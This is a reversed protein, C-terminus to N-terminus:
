SPFRLRKELGVHAGAAQVQARDRELPPHSPVGDVLHELAPLGAPVRPPGSPLPPHLPHAGVWVALLAARAEVLTRASDADARARAEDAVARVVDLRPASGADFRERAIALLRAADAAASVLLRAREGAEWADVWSTTAFWRVDIRAVDAERTVADADSSAARVAAGRQGFLPLPVSVGASLRATERASTLALTPNALAGAVAIEARAVGARRAAVLLEPGHQAAAARAEDWTMAAAARPLAVLVALTAVLERLM